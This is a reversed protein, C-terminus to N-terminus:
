ARDPPITRGVKTVRREALDISLAGRSILPKPEGRIAGPWPGSAPSCNQCTLPKVLYDDRLGEIRDPVQDVRDHHHGPDLQGKGALSRLFLCAGVM